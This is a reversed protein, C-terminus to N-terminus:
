IQHKKKTKLILHMRLRSSQWYKKSINELPIHEDFTGLWDHKSNQKATGDFKRYLGGAPDLLAGSIGAAFAQEEIHRCNELRRQLSCKFSDRRRAFRSSGSRFRFKFRSGYSEYSGACICSREPLTNTDGPLLTKAQKGEARVTRWSSSSVVALEPYVFCMYSQSISVPRRSSSQTSDIFSSEWTSRTPDRCCLRHISELSDLPRIQFCHWTSSVSRDASCVLPNEQVSLERRCIQASLM